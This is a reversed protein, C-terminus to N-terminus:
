YKYIVINENVGGEKIIRYLAVIRSTYVDKHVKSSDIVRISLVEVTDFLGIVIKKYLNDYIEQLIDTNDDCFVTISYVKENSDKYTIM